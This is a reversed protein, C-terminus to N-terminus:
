ITDIYDNCSSDLYLIANKFYEVNDKFSGLGRNCDQCILGRVKNTKHCHDVVLKTEMKCIACLNHSDKILENYQENTLGYKHKKQYIKNQEKENKKNMLRFSNYCEVSCYKGKGQNIILQLTEFDKKCNHCNVIVKKGRKMICLYLFYEM